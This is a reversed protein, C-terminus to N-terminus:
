SKGDVKTFTKVTFFIVSLLTGMLLTLGWTSGHAFPHIFRDAIDASLAMPNSVVDWSNWRLFRGIYVGFSSIFLLIVVIMNTYLPSIKELLIKEMQFLSMLGFLMGAWAFSLIMILDYWQPMGNHHRLHFLDTIIYPANPFFLLWAIAMIGFTYRNITARHTVLYSSFMLPVLALFLNWNLFMYLMSGTFAFRLLSLSFCFIVTFTLLLLVEFRYLKTFNFM